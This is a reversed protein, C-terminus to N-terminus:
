KLRSSVAIHLCANPTNQSPRGSITKKAEGWDIQIADCPDYELPVDAQKPVM